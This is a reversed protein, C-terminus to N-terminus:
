DQACQYQHEVHKMAAVIVFFQTQVRIININLIIIIVIDM